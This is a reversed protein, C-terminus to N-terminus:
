KKGCPQKKLETHIKRSIKILEDWNLFINEINRVGIEEALADKFIVKILHLDKWFRGESDIM